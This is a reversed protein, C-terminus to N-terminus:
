NLFTSQSTAQKGGANANFKRLGGALPFCLRISSSFYGLDQQWLILLYVHALYVGSVNNLWSLSPNQTM